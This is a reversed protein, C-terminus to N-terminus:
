PAKVRRAFFLGLGVVLGALGLCNAAQGAEEAPLAGTFVQIPLPTFTLVFILLVAVAIIKRPRDLRTVDDLPDPHSQGFFFILAAWLFWGPWLVFGMVVLLGIIPLTLRGARQGVLSYLVHGGDLQGVPLLNFATVLLGAWGALAVPHISVDFGHGFPFTGFLAAVVEGLAAGITAPNGTGPLIQGFTLYKFLLYLLSNGEMFFGSGPAPSEMPIIKSMSLGLLLIPLALVFGVLPGAAGVSLMQRRNIARGKMMIFAGMTGLPPLPMPIFFPLSVPVKYHRGAFYHGLEHGTLIIMLSLAFPWGLWLHTLPWLLTDIDSLNTPIQDSYGAGVYLTAVITLLYLLANIWLRGSSEQPQLGPLALLVDLKNEDDHRLVATYGMERLRQAIRPYAQESPAQLKGRLRIVDPQSPVGLTVDHVAFLDAVAAEIRDAMEQRPTKLEDSM